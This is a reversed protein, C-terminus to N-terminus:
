KKRQNRQYEEFLHWAGVAALFMILYPLLSILVYVAILCGVVFCVAKATYNKDM